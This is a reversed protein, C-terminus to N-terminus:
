LTPSPPDSARKDEKRQAKELATHCNAVLKDLIAQGSHVHTPLMPTSHIEQEVCETRARWVGDHKWEQELLNLQTHVSLLDSAAARSVHPSLSHLVDRLMSYVPRLSPSVVSSLVCLWLCTV